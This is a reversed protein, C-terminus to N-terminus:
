EKVKVLKTPPRRAMEMATFIETLCKRTDSFDHEYADLISWAADIMEETIPNDSKRENMM